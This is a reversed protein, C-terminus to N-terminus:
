SVRQSWKNLDKVDRIFNPTKKSIYKAWKKMNNGYLEDKQSNIKYGCIITIISSYQASENQYKYYGKIMTMQFNFDMQSSSM